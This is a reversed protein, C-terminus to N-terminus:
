KKGPRTPNTAEASALKGAVSPDGEPELVPIFNSYMAKSIFFLQIFLKRLEGSFRIVYEM